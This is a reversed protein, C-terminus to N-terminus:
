QHAHIGADAATCLPGPLLHTSSVATDKRRVLHSGPSFNVRYIDGLQFRDGLNTSTISPTRSCQPAQRNGSLYPSGYKGRDSETVRLKGVCEFGSPGISRHDGEPDRQYPQIRDGDRDLGTVRMHRLAERALQPRSPGLM